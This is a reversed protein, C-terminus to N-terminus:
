LRDLIKYIYHNMAVGREEIRYLLHLLLEKNMHECRSYLFCMDKLLNFNFEEISTQRALGKSGSSFVNAISSSKKSVFGYYGYQISLIAESSIVGRGKLEWATKHIDTLILGSLLIENLTPSNIGKINLYDEPLLYFQGEDFPYGETFVKTADIRKNLSNYELRIYRFEKKGQLKEYQTLFEDGTLDFLKCLELDDDEEIQKRMDSKQIQLERKLYKILWGIEKVIEVRQSFLEEDSFAESFEECIKYIQGSDSGGCFKNRLYEKIDSKMSCHHESIKLPNKEGIYISEVSAYNIRSESYKHKEWEGLNLKVTVFNENETAKELAKMLDEDCAFAVRFHSGIDIEDTGIYAGYEMYPKIVANHEQQKESRDKLIFSALGISRKEPIKSAGFSIDISSGGNFFGSFEDNILSGQSHGGESHYYGSHMKKLKPITIWIDQTRIDTM